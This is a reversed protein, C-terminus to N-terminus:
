QVQAFHNLHYSCGSMVANDADCCMSAISADIMVAILGESTCINSNYILSNNNYIVASSIDIM